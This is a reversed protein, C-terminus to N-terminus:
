IEPDFSTVRESEATKISLFDKMTEEAYKVALLRVTSIEGPGDYRIIVDEIWEENCVCEAEAAYGEHHFVFNIVLKNGWEFIKPALM